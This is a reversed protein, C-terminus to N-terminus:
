GISRRGQLAHALTGGDTYEIEGGLPVGHALLWRVAALQGGSAAFHVPQWSDNDQVDLPVGQSYLMRFLYHDPALLLETPNGFPANQAFWRPDTHGHPSIIPLDRVGAYLDRALSRQQPDSSFLRDDSLVLQGSMIAETQQRNGSFFDSMGRPIGRTLEIVGTVM